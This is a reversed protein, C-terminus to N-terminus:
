IKCDLMEMCMGRADLTEIICCFEEVRQPQEQGQKYDYCLYSYRGDKSLEVDSLGQKYGPLQKILQSNSSLCSERDFLKCVKNNSFFTRRQDNLHRKLELGREPM